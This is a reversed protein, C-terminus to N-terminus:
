EIDGELRTKVTKQVSVGQWPNKAALDQEFGRTQVSDVTMVFNINKNEDKEDNKIMHLEKEPMILGDYINIKESEKLSDNLYFYEDNCYVFSDNLHIIEDTRIDRIKEKDRYVEIKFRVFCEAGKNELSTLKEIEQMPVIYDNFSFDVLENNSHMKESVSIDVTDMVVKQKVTYDGIINAGAFSISVIALVGALSGLIKRNKM